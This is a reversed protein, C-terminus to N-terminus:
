MCPSDAKCVPSQGQPNLGGRERDTGRQTETAGRVPQRENNHGRLAMGGTRRRAASATTPRDAQGQRQGCVAHARHRQREACKTRWGRGTCTESLRPQSVIGKAPRQGRATGEGLVQAAPGYSSGSRPQPREGRPMGGGDCEAGLVTGRIEEGRRGLYGLGRGRWPTNM